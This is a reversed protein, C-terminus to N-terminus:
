GKSLKKEFTKEIKFQEELISVIDFDMSSKELRENESYVIEKEVDLIFEKVFEATAIDNLAIFEAYFSEYLKKTEKEWNIWEDFSAAIAKKRTEPDVDDRSYSYWSKPIIGPDSVESNGCLRNLHEASYRCLKIYSKTEEIYHYEHCKAYGKLGLFLYSNMLQSHVMMGKVIRSSFASFIEEVSM